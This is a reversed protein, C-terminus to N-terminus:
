KPKLPSAPHSSHPMLCVLSIFICIFTTACEYPFLFSAKSSRSVSPPLIPAISKLKDFLQMGFVIGIPYFNCLSFLVACSARIKRGRENEQEALWVIGAALHFLTVHQLSLEPWLIHLLYCYM